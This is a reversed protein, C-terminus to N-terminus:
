RGGTEDKEKQSVCMVKSMVEKVRGMGLDWGKDGFRTYLGFVCFCCLSVLCCYCCLSLYISMIYRNFILMDIYM